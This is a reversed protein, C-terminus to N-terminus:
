THVATVIWRISKVCYIMTVVGSGTTTIDAGTNTIIQNKAASNGSQNAITMNYPTANYLMVVRGDSGHDLGTITFSQSPSTIRFFSAIPALVNNNVSTTLNLDFTSLRLMDTTVVGFNMPARSDHVRFYNGLSRVLQNFYEFSYEKPPAPLNPSTFNDFAV